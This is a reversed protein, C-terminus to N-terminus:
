FIRWNSGDSIVEVAAGPPLTYTTVGDITQSSTTAITKASTDTNKLQYFGTNGVATPLTPAGGSGIFVVYDGDAGLTSSTTLAAVTRRTYEAGGAASRVKAGTGKGAMVLDVTSASGDARVAVSTQSADAAIYFSESGKPIVKVGINTDSGKAWQKVTSGAAANSIEWYNAASGTATVAIANAGNADKIAATAVSPTTISGDVTLKGTPNSGSPTYASTSGGTDVYHTTVLNTAVSHSTDGQLLDYKVAGDVPMWTVYNYDTSTLTAAGLATSGAPSPPTKNGDKDIAVVYYTWTTSGATHPTVNPAAPTALSTIRQAGYPSVVDVGPRPGILVPDNWADMLVTRGTTTDRIIRGSDATGSLPTNDPYLAGGAFGASLVGNIYTRNGQNKIMTRWLRAFNPDLYLYTYNVGTGIQITRDSGITGRAHIYTNNTTKGGVADALKLLATNGSSMESSRVNAVRNFRNYGTQGTPTEIEVAIHTDASEGGANSEYYIIDIDHYGSDATWSNSQTNTVLVARKVGGSVGNDGVTNSVVTFRSVGDLVIGAESQSILHCDRIRCDTWSSGAGARFRVGYQALDGSGGIRLNRLNIDEGLRSSATGVADLIGGHVHLAAINEFNASKWSNLRIPWELNWNGEFVLDHMGGGYGAEDGDTYSFTFFYELDTSTHGDLVLATAYGAAGAIHIWQDVTITELGSDGEDFLFHYQGEPIYITGGSFPVSSYTSNAKLWDCANQMPRTCDVASPLVGFWRANIVGSGDLIRKWRGHAALAGDPAIVTGGNDDSTTDASDWRFMGGGGDGAAAYGLVRVYGDSAGLAASVSAMGRLGAITSCTAAGIASRADTAPSEGPGGWDVAGWGVTVIDVLEVPDGVDDGNADVWQYLTDPDEPDVPAAYTRFQERNTEVYQGVATNLQSQQTDPPYAIGDEIVDWLPTDEEPITVLYETGDPNTIYCTIGVEVTITLEGARPYIARSKRPTIVGGDGNNQYSAARVYWPRNDMRAGADRTTSGTIDVTAM